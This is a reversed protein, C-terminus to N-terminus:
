GPRPGPLLANGVTGPDLDAELRARRRAARESPVQMRELTRRESSVWTQSLRGRLKANRKIGLTATSIENEATEKNFADCKIPKKQRVGWRDWGLIIEGDKRVWEGDSAGSAM